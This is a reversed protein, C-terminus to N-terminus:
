NDRTKLLHEIFNNKVQLDKKLTKVEDKLMSEKKSSERRLKSIDSNLDSVMKEYLLISNEKPKEIRERFNTSMSDVLDKLPTVRGGDHVSPSTHRHRLCVEDFLDKPDKTDLDKVKFDASESNLKGNKCSNVEIKGDGNNVSSFISSSSSFFCDDSDDNKSKSRKFKDMDEVMKDVKKWSDDFAKSYSAREM